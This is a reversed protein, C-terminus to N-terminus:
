PRWWRDLPRAAPLRRIPLEAIPSPADPIRQAGLSVGVIAAGLRSELAAQASPPLTAFDRRLADLCHVRYPSVQLHWTVKEADTHSFRRMRRRFAAENAVLYPLYKGAVTELIGDLGDPVGTPLPAATWAGDPRLNWMRGVWELVAPAGDRMIRAPTPDCFFHRFLPGFFGFDAGTPRGGLLFPRTRLIGEMDRLTRLYLAEVAPATAATVGDGRLYVRRQRLKFIRAALPLAWKPGGVLSEAIRRSLLDADVDFAWRFYLAPRWLWEDAYDELLLAVFRATPDAPTVAPEPHRGELHRITPTTDTLWSGDPCEVAPMQAVGTAAACRRLDALDMEHHRWPIGKARLYAQLKGTFYSLDMGHVVLPPGM